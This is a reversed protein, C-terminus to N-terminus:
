SPSSEKPTPPPITEHDRHIYHRRCNGCYADSSTLKATQSSAQSNSIAFAPWTRLDQSGKVQRTVGSQSRLRLRQLLSAHGGGLSFIGPATESVAQFLHETNRKCGEDNGETLTM